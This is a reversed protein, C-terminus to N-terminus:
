DSLYKQKNRNHEELTKSFILSSSGTPTLFYNYETYIPYIAAKIAEIGPNAIPGPPLGQHMYTNYPSDIKTDALSYIPKNVGLIYALTACSQLPQGYKIRDWFIGAVIKADDNKGGQNVAAEKEVLSAMTLIDYITKGQKAIDARMQPTLKKDFNSLLKYVVEDATSSAYIRYTDPFLYGELDASEPKDELFSFDSYYEKASSASVADLFSAAAPHGIKDLEEAIQKDNWGEIIKMTKEERLQSAAEKERAIRAVKQNHRYIVFATIAAIFLIAILIYIKSQDKRRM